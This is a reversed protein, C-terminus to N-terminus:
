LPCSADDLHFMLSAQATMLYIFLNLLWWFVLVVFSGFRFPIDEFTRGSESINLQVKLQWGILIHQKEHVILM